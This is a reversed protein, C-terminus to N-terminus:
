EVVETNGYDHRNDNWSNDDTFQNDMSLTGDGTNTVTFDSSATGGNNAFSSGNSVTASINDGAADLGAAGLAYMGGVTAMFPIQNVFALAVEGSTVPAEMELQQQKYIHEIMPVLERIIEPRRYETMFAFVEGTNSYITEKVVQGNADVYEKEFLPSGKQEATAAKDFGSMLIELTKMVVTTQQTMRISETVAFEKKATSYDKYGCAVTSLAVFVCLIIAMLKKTM